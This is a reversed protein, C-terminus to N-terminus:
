RNWEASETFSVSLEVAEAYVFPQRKDIPNPYRQELTAVDLDDVRIEPVRDLSFGRQLAASGAYVSVSMALLGAMILLRQLLETSMHRAM